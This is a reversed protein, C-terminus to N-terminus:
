NKNRIEIMRQKTKERNIMIACDPCYKLRGNSRGNSKPVLKGCNQCEIYKGGMYQWFYDGAYNIDGVRLAIDNNSKDVFTVKISLSDVRNNLDILGKTYLEHLCLNNKQKTFGTLKAAKFIYKLDYNVWPESKGKALEFKAFCLLTFALRQLSTVRIGEGGTTINMVSNMESKTIIIENVINLNRNDIHSLANAIYMDRLKNNIKPEYKRLDAELKQKIVDIDDGQQRYYKALLGVAYGINEGLNGKEKLKSIYELENMIIKQLIKVM